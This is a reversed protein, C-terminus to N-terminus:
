PSYKYDYEILHKTMRYEPPPNGYKSFRKKEAILYLNKRARSSIVYLMKKANVDGHIDSKYPIYDQLLAFAIVTDFEAGKVGHFTSVTIGERQKFVKKFTATDGIYDIGEDKLRKIRSESSDFFAKYHEKLISYNDLEIGLITLIANFFKKLYDLGNSETIIISNCVKLFRKNTLQSVDVGAKHLESLIESSWRLRSLYLHPSPETLVIRTLRFWFNEIDRSFPAMGPGDFSYEPLQLMLKRTASALHIWQPAIVCIEKQSIGIEEINYKILRAIEDILNDKEVKNNLSIISKYDAYKGAPVINNEHTKFYEFYDIIKASSRYNKSLELPKLSVNCIKEIESREMPFGGMTQYISQNPDGVIFLKTSQNGVNIISSIINYQVEKTDQYEDILVFPFIKSLIKCVIPRDKLLKLSYYLILEFDIQYNARLTKLYTGLIEKVAKTKEEKTNSPVLKPETSVHFTCDFSTIRNWKKLGYKENYEECFSSLIEESAHADIVKFGKKLHPIYCSYPRLIWELCFSHITGIWLQKTEVGLLDIREKIEDAARNTYTIAIIFKKESTQKSLEYAIKYTLTRTKGSGPCAILLVNEEEIIAKSQEINLEKESWVFM